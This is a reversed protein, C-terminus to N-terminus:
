DHYDGIFSIKVNSVREWDISEDTKLPLPDHQPQFVLRRGDDLRLAFSGAMDGTLPHPHGAVLEAVCQAAEIEALRTRLKKAGDVGLIKRAHAADVCLKELKKTAFGIEM